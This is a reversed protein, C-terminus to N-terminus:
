DDDGLDSCENVLDLICRGNKRVVAILYETYTRFVGWMLCLEQLKNAVFYIGYPNGDLSGHAPDFGVVPITKFNKAYEKAHQKYFALLESVNVPRFGMKELKSIVYRVHESTYCGDHYFLNLRILKVTTKRFADRRSHPFNYQNINPNARSFKCKKVMEEVTEAYNVTVPFRGSVKRMKCVSKM